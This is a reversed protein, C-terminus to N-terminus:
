NVGTRGVYLTTIRPDALLEHGPGDIVNRGGSMVYGWHARSLARRVNQEVLVVAVGSDVVALIRDWIVDEAKPALGATPEDLLLVTPDVMLARAVALMHQQGGSLTRAKRRLASKLDPFIECIQDIKEGVGTRLSYGGMELNERVTLSPFINAVQPVYSLGKRMLRETPEATVNQGQFLVRGHSPKLVGCIAKILTSKGCGNPGVIVTIEGKTARMTVGQVIPAGGYGASLEEVALVAEPM